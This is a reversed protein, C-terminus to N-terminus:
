QVKARIVAWIYQLKLMWIYRRTMHIEAQITAKTGIRIADSVGLTAMIKAM